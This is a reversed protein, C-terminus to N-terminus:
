LNQLEQLHVEELPNYSLTLERLSFPLQKPRITAIKNQGIDLFTLNQHLALTTDPGPSEVREKM